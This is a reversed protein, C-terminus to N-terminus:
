EVGQGLIFRQYNRVAESVTGAGKPTNYWQKWYEAFGKIDDAAPLPEPRRLYQMRAMLAAYVLNYELSSVDPGFGLGSINLISEGLSPKFRLFNSWIDDHTAPEMQFIGLAPGNHLQRLYTMHSEQAATMLLLNLASHSYLDAAKLSREILDSLQNKNIPM